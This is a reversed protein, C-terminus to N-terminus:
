GSRGQFLWPRCSDEIEKSPGGRRRHPLKKLFEATRYFLSQVTQVKEVILDLPAGGKVIKGGKVSILVQGPVFDVGTRERSRESWISQLLDRLQDRAFDPLHESALCRHALTEATHRQAAKFYLSVTSVASVGYTRSKAPDLKRLAQEEAQAAKAYLEQARDCEGRRVAVEADSAYQESQCHHELWTM